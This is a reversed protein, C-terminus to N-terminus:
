TIPDQPIVRHSNCDRQICSNKVRWCDTHYSSGCKNCKVWSEGELIPYHCLLCNLEVKEEEKPIDEPNIVADVQKPEYANIDEMSISITNPTNLEVNEIDDFSIQIENNITM